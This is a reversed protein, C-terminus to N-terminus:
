PATASAAAPLAERAQLPQLVPPAAPDHAVDRRGLVLHLPFAAIVIGGVIWHTLVTADRMEESGYYLMLGSLMLLCMVLLMAIGSVRNRRAIWAVRLHGPLIAGIALLTFASSVGHMVLYSHTELGPIELRLEHRLFFLLGSLACLAFVIHTPIRQWVPLRGARRIKPSNM